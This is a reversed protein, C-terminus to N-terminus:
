SLSNQNEFSRKLSNIPNKIEIKKKQKRSKELQRTESAKISNIRQAKRLNKKKKKENKSIHKGSSSLTQFCKFHSFPYIFKM